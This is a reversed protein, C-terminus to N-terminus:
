ANAQSRRRLVFLLGTAGIAILSLASPEPAAVAIGDVVFENYGSWSNAVDNFSIKVDAVGEIGATPISPNVTPLYLGLTPTLITQAGDNPDDTSGAGTPYPTITTLTYFTTPAGVLSYQITYGQQYRGHDQWGSYVEIDTLDYGM